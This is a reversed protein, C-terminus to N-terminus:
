CSRDQRPTKTITLAKAIDAKKGNSVSQWMVVTEYRWARDEAKTLTAKWRLIEKEWWHRHKQGRLVEYVPLTRLLKARFVGAPSDALIQVLTQYLENVGAATHEENCPANVFRDCIMESVSGTRLYPRKM